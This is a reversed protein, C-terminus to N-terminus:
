FSQKKGPLSIRSARHSVNFSRTHRGALVSCKVNEDSGERAGPSVGAPSDEREQDDLSM